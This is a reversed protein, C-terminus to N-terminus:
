LKQWVASNCKFGSGLAIQLVRDGRKARGSREIFQLEYWISSSSTNGYRFLTARSPETHHPELKFNEELGDIIARGGAHICFHEFAKKFNPVYPKDKSIWGLHRGTLNFLFKAQESYPLVMPGLRTINDKLAGGAVKLLDKSLSVGLKGDGDEEQFVCSYADDRAGKHVRVIHNLKYKARWGDSWKNSLFIGAGGVRFLTNSILKNKDKGLYWNQTINETSLVVVNSNPHVQLLDKALDVSIVGASCGMGGLNFNKCDSRMNYKNMVMASLSPTPCFLSCNVILFDIERPKLNSKELLDDMCGSLVQMAEERARKMNIDPPDSFMADPFYTENGLGNRLLLKEQFELSEQDFFGTKRSRYMFRSAPVKRNDPPQYLSFDVLYVPRQRRAWWTALGFIAALTGALIFALISWVNSHTEKTLGHLSQLVLQVENFFASLEAQRLYVITAVAAVLLLVFIFGAEFLRGYLELLGWRVSKMDAAREPYWYSRISSPVNQDQKAAADVLRQVLVAKLGSSDLGKSELLERLQPVKLKNLETATKPGTSDAAGAAEQSDGGTKEAAAGQDGQGKAPGFVFNRAKAALPADKMAGMEQSHSPPPPPPAHTKNWERVFEAEGESSLEIEAEQPQAKRQQPKRPSTRSRAPSASAERAAARGM